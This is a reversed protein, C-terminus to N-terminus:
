RDRRLTGGVMTGHGRIHAPFPPWARAPGPEAREALMPAPIVPAAWASRLCSAVEYQRRLVASFGGAASAGM